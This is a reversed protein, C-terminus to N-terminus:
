CRAARMWCDGPWSWIRPPTPSCRSARRRGPRAGGRGPRVRRAPAHRSRRDGRAQDLAHRVGRAGHARHHRGGQRYPLRRHQASGAGWARAGAVLIRARGHRAPDRAAALRHRGRGRRGAGGAALIAPSPYQATGLLLRSGLETGYVQMRGLRGADAGAGRRPRGRAALADRASRGPCSTGNVATAVVLGGYGLEALVEALTQGAVERPEDNVIIRM